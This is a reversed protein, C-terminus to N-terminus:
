GFCFNSCGKSGQSGFLKLINIRFDYRYGASDEHRPVADVGASQALEILIKPRVAKYCISADMVVTRSTQDVDKQEPFLDM